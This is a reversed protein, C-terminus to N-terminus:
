NRATQPRSLKKSPLTQYNNTVITGFDGVIDYDGPGPISKKPEFMSKRYGKFITRKGSSRM